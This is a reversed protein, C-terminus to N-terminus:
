KKRRFLLSSGTMWLPRPSKNEHYWRWECVIRMGQRQSHIKGFDTWDSLAIVHVLGDCGVRINDTSVFTKAVCNKGSGVRMQTHLEPLYEGCVTDHAEWWGAVRQKRQICSSTGKVAKIQRNSISVCIAYMQWTRRTIARAKANGDSYTFDMIWM